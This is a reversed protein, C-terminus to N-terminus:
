YGVLLKELPLLFWREIACGCIFVPNRANILMFPNNGRYGIKWHRQHMTLYELARCKCIIISSDRSRTMRDLQEFSCSLVAIKTWFLESAEEHQHILRNWKLMIVEVSCMAAVLFKLFILLPVLTLPVYLFSFWVIAIESAETSVM